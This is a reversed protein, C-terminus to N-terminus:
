YCDFAYRSTWIRECDSQYETWRYECEVATELDIRSRSRTHQQNQVLDYGGLLLSSSCSCWGNKSKTPCSSDGIAAGLFLRSM